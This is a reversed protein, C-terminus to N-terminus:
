TFKYSLTGFFDHRGVSDHTLNAVFEGYLYHLWALAANQTSYFYCSWLTAICGNSRYGSRFFPTIIVAVQFPYDMDNGIVCPTIPSVCPLSCLQALSLADSMLSLLLIILLSLYIAALNSKLYVFVEIFTCVLLKNITIFVWELLLRQIQQVCYLVILWHTFVCLLNFVTSM